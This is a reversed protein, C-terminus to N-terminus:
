EDSPEAKVLELKVNTTQDMSVTIEQARDAYRDLAGFEKFYRPARDFAWILYRGPPLVMDGFRGDPATGEHRPEGAPELPLVLVFASATRGQFNVFGGLKGSEYGLTIEIPPTEQEAIVLPEKLLDVTGCTAAAIYLPPSAGFRVRYKGAAPELLAQPESQSAGRFNRSIPARWGGQSELTMSLTGGEARHDNATVIVPIKRAESLVLKLGSLDSHVMLHQPASVTQATFVRLTYDGPPVRLLQFKGTAPDFENESHAYLGDSSIFELARYAGANGGVIEGSVTFLHSKKLSLDLALRQGAHLQVPTASHLGSVGPYFSLPYGDLPIRSNKVTVLLRGTKPGGMIFYQGAPLDDFTFHGDEDTIAERSRLMRMEGDLSARYFLTVPVNELPEGTGSITRGLIAATPSLKILVSGSHSDALIPSAAAVAETSLEDLRIFGSKEALLRVPQTSVSGFNFHGEGDTLAIRPQKEQLVVLAGRLPAGSASNIVTGEVTYPKTPEQSHLACSILYLIAACTSRRVQTGM